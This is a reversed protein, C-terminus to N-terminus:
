KGTAESLCSEYEKRSVFKLNIFTSNNKDLAVGCGSCAKFFQETAFVTEVGCNHCVHTCIAEMYGSLILGRLVHSLDTRGIQNSFMEERIFEFTRGDNFAGKEVLMALYIESKKIEESTM